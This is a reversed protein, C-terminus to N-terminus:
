SIERNNQELLLVLKLVHCPHMSLTNGFFSPGFYLCNLCTVHTMSLTYGFFSPCFYLCNSCTVLYDSSFSFYVSLCFSICVFLYVSSCYFLCVLLHVSLYLFSICFVGVIPLYVSLYVATYVLKPETDSLLSFYLYFINRLGCVWYM